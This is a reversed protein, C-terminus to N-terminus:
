PDLAGAALDIDRLYKGTTRIYEHPLPPCPLATNSLLRSNDFIQSLNIFRFYPEMGAVLRRLSGNFALNWYALYEGYRHLESPPKLKKPWKKMQPILDLSVFKIAPRGDSGDNIAGLVKELSTAGAKGASIHYTTWQRKAFLLEAIARAAYDVPIVDVDARPDAPILRMADMVALAWLIVYSRPKWDRSDGMIISPRVILVKERPIMRSVDMEGVMKTYCYRVLHSAGANPSQNEYITRNTLQTGCISATGVYLFTELNPLKQAWSLIQHTGGINVREVSGNRAPSFSTDAAAHIVTNVERLQALGRLKDALSNDALDGLVPIIRAGDFADGHFQFVRALRDRAAQADNARVLCYLRRIKPTQSLLTALEGGLFGTSGTLFVYM